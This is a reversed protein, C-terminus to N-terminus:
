YGHKEKRISLAQDMNCTAHTLRVNSMVDVGGLAVPIIHDIHIKSDELSEGCMGCVFGDREILFSIIIDRYGSSISKRKGHPIHPNQKRWARAYENTEKSNAITEKWICNDKNYGKSKDVRYLQHKPSPREGMDSVFNWFSAEWTPCLSHKSRMRQIWCYTDNLPHQEKVLKTM